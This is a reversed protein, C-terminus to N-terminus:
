YLQNSSSHLSILSAFYTSPFKGKGHTQMRPLLAPSTSSPNQYQHSDTTHKTNQFAFYETSTPLLLSSFSPQKCRSGRSAETQLLCPQQSKQEKACASCVRVSPNACHLFTPRGTRHPAQGSIQHEHASAPHLFSGPAAGHPQSPTERPSTPHFPAKWPTVTRTSGKGGAHKQRDTGLARWTDVCAHFHM